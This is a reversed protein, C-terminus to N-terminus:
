WVVSNWGTPPMSAIALAIARSTASTSVSRAFTVAIRWSSAPTATVQCSVPVPSTSCARASHHTHVMGSETSPWISRVTEGAMAAAISATGYAAVTFTPKCNRRRKQSSSSPM